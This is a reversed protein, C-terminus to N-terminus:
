TTTVVVLDRSRGAVEVDHLFIPSSDVTGPLAVTHARLRRVRAASPGSPAVGTRAADYGFRTWDRTGTAASRAGTVPAITARATTTPTTTVRESRPKSGGCGALVVLVLLALLRPAMAEM